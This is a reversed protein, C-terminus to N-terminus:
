NVEDAKVHDPRKHWIALYLGTSMRRARAKAKDAIEGEFLEDITEFWLKLWQGFHEQSISYNEKQDVNQHAAPPNGRFKAIGFLNSEWFDILKELHSPWNDEKISGNFIPGLLDDKRIKNYFSHVLNKIDTRTEINKM